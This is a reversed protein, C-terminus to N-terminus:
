RGLLQHYTSARSDSIKRVGHIVIFRDVFGAEVRDSGIHQIEVGVRSGGRM